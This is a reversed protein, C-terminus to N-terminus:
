NTYPGRTRMLMDFTSPGTGLLMDQWHSTVSMTCSSFAQIRLTYSTPFAHKALTNTLGMHTISYRKAPGMRIRDSLLYEKVSFHALKLETHTEGGSFQDNVVDVTTVLSSCIKLADRKEMFRREVDFRPNSDIDIAIVEALEELRLPRASSVLWQLMSLVYKIHEEKIACLIRAYTDDLTKPLNKLSKRLMPLNLSDGLADLQCGVWRFRAFLM